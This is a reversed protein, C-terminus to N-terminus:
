GRWAPIYCQVKGGYFCVWSHGDPAPGDSRAGRAHEDIPMWNDPAGPGYEAKGIWAETEGAANLRLDTPRCDSLSCCQVWFTPAMGAINNEISQVWKALPSNLDAGPPPAALAVGTVLCGALVKTWM